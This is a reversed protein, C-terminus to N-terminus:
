TRWDATAPAPAAQPDPDAVPGAVPANQPGEQATEPRPAQRPVARLDPRGQPVTAARRAEAEKAAKAKAKRWVRLRWRLIRSGFTWLLWVVIRSYWPLKGLNLQALADLINRTWAAREKDTLDLYEDKGDLDDWKNQGPIASAALSVVDTLAEAGAEDLERPIEGRTTRQGPADPAGAARAAAIAERADTPAPIDAQTVEAVAV